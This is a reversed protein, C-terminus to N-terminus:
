ATEVQQVLKWGSDSPDPYVRFTISGTNLDNALLFDLDSEMWCREFTYTEVDTPLNGDWRTLVIQFALSSVLRGTWTRVDWTTEGIVNLLYKRVKDFEAFNLTLLVETGTIVGDAPVDPADDVLIDRKRHGVVVTVGATTTGLSHVNRDDELEAVHQISIEYHGANFDRYQNRAM